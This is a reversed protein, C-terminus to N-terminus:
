IAPSVVGAIKTGEAFQVFNRNNRLLTAREASSLYSIKHFLRIPLSFFIRIEAMFITFIERAVFSSIRLVKVTKKAITGQIRQPFVAAPIETICFASDFVAGVAKQRVFSSIVAVNGSLVPLQGFQHLLHPFSFLSFLRLFM